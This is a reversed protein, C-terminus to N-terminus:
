KIKRHQFWWEGRTTSCKANRAPVNRAPGYYRHRKGCLYWAWPGTDWARAPGNTRHLQDGLVYETRDKFRRIKVMTSSNEMSIGAPQPQKDLDMIVTHNISYGGFDQDMQRMEAHPVMREIGDVM